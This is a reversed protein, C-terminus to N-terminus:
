DEEKREEKKKQHHVPKRRVTIGEKKPAAKRGGTRIKVCGGSMSCLTQECIGNEVNVCSRRRVHVSGEKKRRRSFKRM